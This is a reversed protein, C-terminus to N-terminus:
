YEATHKKFICGVPNLYKLESSVLKPNQFKCSSLWIKIICFNKKPSVSIGTIEKIFEKDHSISEGMLLFSLDRWTDKVYKNSVKYSFCGGNRNKEDEWRPSISEKMLFLMCFKIVDEHMLDAVAISQEICSITDILKYSHITWDSDNPLHYWLKWKKNFIHVNPQNSLTSSISQNGSNLTEM